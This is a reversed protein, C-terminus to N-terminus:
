QVSVCGFLIYQGAAVVSQSQNTPASGRDGDKRRGTTTSFCVLMRLNHMNRKCRAMLHKHVSMGEFMSLSVGCCVYCGCVMQSLKASLKKLEQETSGCEGELSNFSSKLMDYAVRQEQLLKTLRDCREQTFFSPAHM